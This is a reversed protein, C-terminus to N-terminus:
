LEHWKQGFLLASPILSVSPSHPPRSPTPPPTCQPPPISPVRHCVWWCLRRRHAILPPMYSSTLTMLAVVQGAAKHPWANFSGGGVGSEPRKYLHSSCCDFHEEKVCGVMSHFIIGLILGTTTTFYSFASFCGITKIKVTWRHGEISKHFM